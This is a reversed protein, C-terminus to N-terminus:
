FADDIMWLVDVAHVHHLDAVPEFHLNFEGATAKHGQLLPTTRQCAAGPAPDAAHLLQVVNTFGDCRQRKALREDQRVEVHRQLRKMGDLGNTLQATTRM